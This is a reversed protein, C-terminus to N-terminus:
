RLRILVAHGNLNHVFRRDPGDRVQEVHRTVGECWAFGYDDYVVAGGVVLRPWVWEFIARASEYVDVDIHCFRFQEHAIADATAEPFVGSLIRVDALNLRRLLSEVRQQDTDRHEGGRYFSDAAGAKVVGTFTDCLYVPATIGALQASRAIVAGSGGRWVGIEILSGELSATQRVLSWLEYLRYRDVLTSGAVERLLARFEADTNWPAYSAAPLVFEHRAGLWRPVGNLLADAPRRILARLYRTLAM